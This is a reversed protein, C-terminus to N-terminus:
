EEFQLKIFQDVNKFLLPKPNLPEGYKGNEFVFFKGSVKFIQLNYQKAIDFDITSDEGNRYFESETQKKLGIPLDSEVDAAVAKKAPTLQSIANLGVLASEHKPSYVVEDREERDIRAFKNDFVKSLDHECEFVQGKKIVTSAFGGQENRGHQIRYHGSMVRLKFM